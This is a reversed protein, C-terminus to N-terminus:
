INFTRQLFIKKIIGKATKGVKQNDKIYSYMKSRLGVFECIYLFEQPRM